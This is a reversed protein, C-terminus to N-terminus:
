WEEKKGSISSILSQVLGNVSAELSPPCTKYAGKITGDEKFFTGTTFFAKQADAWIQEVEFSVRMRNDKFELILWYNIDYWNKTIATYVFAREMYGFIRIKEGPVEERLVESPKKYTAKVWALAKDYLKGAPTSDITYVVPTFGTKTLKLQQAYPSVSVCVVLFFTFALLFYRKAM